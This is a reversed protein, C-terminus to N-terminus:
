AASGCCKKFKKGSGCTCPDNRGVKPAERVVTAPKARWGDVFLWQGDADKRFTATEHHAHANGKDDRYRAIFEVTGTVDDAGGKETRVIELGMWDSRKAWQRAAAPDFDHSSEPALTRGVYDIDQRTYATYRSRMLAEASAPKRTGDILPGCCAAYASTSGCPCTM